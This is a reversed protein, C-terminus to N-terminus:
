QRALAADRVYAALDTEDADAAAVLAAYESPTLKIAVVHERAELGREANTKRGAGKRAGGHTETRKPTM